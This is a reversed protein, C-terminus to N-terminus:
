TLICSMTPPCHTVIGLLILSNIFFVSFSSKFTFKYVNTGQISGQFTYLDGTARGSLPSLDYCPLHVPLHVKVDIINQCDVRKDIKILRKIRVSIMLILWDEGRELAEVSLNRGMSHPKSSWKFPARDGKEKYKKMIEMRNRIKSTSVTRRNGVGRLIFSKRDVVRLSM